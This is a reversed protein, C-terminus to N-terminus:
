KTKEILKEIKDLKTKMLENEKKLALTETKLTLTEKKLAANEAKAEAKVSAIVRENVKEKEELNMVRAVVAKFESYFAKIAGTIWPIFGTYSVQKFGDKGTTVFEPAVKEVEQAIYGTHRGNNINKWEYTVTKLKLVNELSLSDTFEKINKKLREDSSCSVSGATAPTISCTATGDSFYGVTAGSSGVVHLKYSPSTTGIGVNGSSDITM